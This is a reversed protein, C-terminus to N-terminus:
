PLIKGAKIPSQKEQETLITDLFTLLEERTKFYTIEHSTPDELSMLWQGQVQGSSHWIRMLFAHYQSNM